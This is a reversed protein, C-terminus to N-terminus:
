CSFTRFHLSLLSVCVLCNLLFRPPAYFTLLPEEAQLITITFTLPIEGGEPFAKGRVRFKRCVEQECSRRVVLVVEKGQIGQVRDLVYHASGAMAGGRLEVPGMEDIVVGHVDGRIPSRTPERLWRDATRIGEQSVSLFGVCEAADWSPPEFREKRAFALRRGTSMRLADCGALQGGALVKVLLLGDHGKSPM